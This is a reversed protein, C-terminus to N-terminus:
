SNLVLTPSVPSVLPNEQWLESHFQWGNLAILAMSSVNKGLCETPALAMPPKPKPTYGGNPYRPHSATEQLISGVDLSYGIFPQNIDAGFCRKPKGFRPECRFLTQPRRKTINASSIQHCPQCTLTVTIRNYVTIVPHTSMLMRLRCDMSYTSCFIVRFIM